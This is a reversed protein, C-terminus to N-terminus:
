SERSFFIFDSAPPTHGAQRLITAIQGRHHTGHNAVHATIDELSTQFSVGKSNQYTIVRTFDTEHQLFDLWLQSGQNLSDLAENLPFEPFVKPVAVSVPEIRNLWILQAAAIHALLRNIKPDNIKESTLVEAFRNNAWRNYQFLRSFYTKM